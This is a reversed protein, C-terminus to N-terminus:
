TESQREGLPSHFDFKECSSERINCHKIGRIQHYKYLDKTQQLSFSHYYSTSKKQPFSDSQCTWNLLSSIMKMWNPLIECCDFFM